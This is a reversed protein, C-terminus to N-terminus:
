LVFDTQGQFGVDLERNPNRETFDIVLVDVVEELHRGAPRRPPDCQAQRLVDLAVSKDSTLLTKYQYMASLKLM